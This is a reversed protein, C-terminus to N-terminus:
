ADPDIEKADVMQLPSASARGAHVGPAMAHAFNKKTGAKVDARASM